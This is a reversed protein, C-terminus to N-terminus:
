GMLVCVEQAAEDAVAAYCGEGSVYNVGVGVVELQIRDDVCNSMELTESTPGDIEPALSIPLFFPFCLETKPPPESRPKNSIRHRLRHTEHRQHKHTSLTPAMSGCYTVM